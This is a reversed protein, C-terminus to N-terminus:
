AIILLRGLSTTSLCHRGRGHDAFCAGHGHHPEGTEVAVLAAVLPRRRRRVRGDLGRVRLRHATEGDVVHRVQDLAEAEAPVAQAEEVGDGVDNEVAEVEEAAAAAAGVRRGGVHDQRAVSVAPVGPRDGSEAGVHADDGADPGVESVCGLLLGLAVDVEGAPVEDDGDPDGLKLVGGGDILFISAVYDAAMRIQEAVPDQESELDRSNRCLM